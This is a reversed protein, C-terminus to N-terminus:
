RTQPRDHGAARREVADPRGPAARAARHGSDLAVLRRALLVRGEGQWPALTQASHRLKGFFTARYEPVIAEMVREPRDYIAQPDLGFLERCGDGVFPFHYSGDAELMFQYIMGPCNSAMRRLRVESEGLATEARQREAAEAEARHRVLHLSFTEM